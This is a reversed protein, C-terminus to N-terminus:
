KIFLCFYQLYFFFLFFPSNLVLWQVVDCWFLKFAFCCLWTAVDVCLVWVCAFCVCVSRTGQHKWGTSLVSLGLSGSLRGSHEVIRDNSFIDVGAVVYLYM